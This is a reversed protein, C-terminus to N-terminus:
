RLARSAGRPTASRGRRSLRLVDVLFAALGVLVASVAISGADLGVTGTPTPALLVIAATLTGVLFTLASSRILDVWRWVRAEWRGPSVREVVNDVWAPPMEARRAVALVSLVAGMREALASCRKCSALHTLVDEVAGDPSQLAALIRDADPCPDM